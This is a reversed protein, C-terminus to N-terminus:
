PLDQTACVDHDFRMWVEGSGHLAAALHCHRLQARVARVAARPPVWPL